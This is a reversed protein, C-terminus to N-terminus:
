EEASIEATERSSSSSRSRSSEVETSHIVPGPEAGKLSVDPIMKAQPGTKPRMPGKRERPSNRESNKELILVASSADSKPDPSSSSSSKKQPNELDLRFNPDWWGYSRLESKRRSSAWWDSGLISVDSFKRVIDLGSFL